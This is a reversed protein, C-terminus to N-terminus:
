LSPHALFEKLTKGSEQEVIREISFPTLSFLTRKSIDTQTDVAFILGAFDGSYVDVLVGGSSGMQSGLSAKSLIFNQDFETVTTESFLLNLSKLLIEFGLLESAYSFTALPQNLKPTYKTKVEFYPFSEPLPTEGSPRTILWISIDNEAQTQREATSTYKQPFLVLKAYGLARAPSGQRVLCEYNDASAFDNAVHANTIVHGTESILAGSSVIIQNTRPVECFFNVVRAIATEYLAQQSLRPPTNTNEIDKLTQTAQNIAQQIQELTKKNVPQRPATIKKDTQSTTSSATTPLGFHLNNEPSKPEAPTNTTTQPQPQNLELLIFIGSVAIAAILWDFIRSM